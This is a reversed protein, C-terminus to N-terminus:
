IGQFSVEEPTNAKGELFRELISPRLGGGKAGLM